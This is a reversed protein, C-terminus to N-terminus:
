MIERHSCQLRNNSSGSPSGRGRCGAASGRGTGASRGTPRSRRSGGAASGSGTGAAGGSASRNRGCIRDPNRHISGTSIDSVRIFYVADRLGFCGVYIPLDLTTQKRQKKEYM